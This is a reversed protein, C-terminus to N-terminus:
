SSHMHHMDPTHRHNHTTPSHVHHHSHEGAVAAEHAHGHHGDKHSHRHDHELTEHTHSHAHKEVAAFYAGAVMVLVAVVFSITVPQGFVAFFLAMGVFPAIAYYASTRAAGLERQARIYFFISLGYAFFGLLLASVVYLMNYSVQRMSFAIILAGVGSGLGKIVVVQIPNKLSLMRTCNNEIGWCLCAALVLLSGASFSFGSIDEFSLIMSSFTILLIAVWMRKGIAEKFVFLAILATAVIEFNNLLSANAPTTMGLGFMLLVPAAVDLVVMGIVYPLEKGTIKAEKKAKRGFLSVAAMGLGAGLYLLAAMQAAPIEALLIKSLPASVGYCVAALVAFFIPSLSKNGM